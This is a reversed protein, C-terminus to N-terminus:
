ARLSVLESARVPACIGDLLLAREDALAFRGDLQDAAARGVLIQGPSAAEELRAAVNVPAGIVGYESGAKTGLCGAAVLGTNIGFGFRPGRLREVAARARLAARAAAAAPEAHPLPVGFVAMAGDGMFKNITGGEAHVASIFCALMEDLCSAATEPSVRESSSTFGRAEAFLVTAMRLSRPAIAEPAAATRRGAARARVLDLLAALPFPKLLCDCAGDRLASITSERTPYATMMAVPTSGARARRVLENGNVAGPVTLDIIILDWHETLRPLAREGSECDSVEHGESRLARACVERIGPEDDVILIRM